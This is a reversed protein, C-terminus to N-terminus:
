SSQLFNIVVLAIRSIITLAIIISLPIDIWSLIKRVKIARDSTLPGLIERATLLGLLVIFTGWYVLDPLNRFFRLLEFIIEDM